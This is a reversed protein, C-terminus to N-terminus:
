LLTKWDQRYLCISRKLFRIIFAFNVASRLNMIRLVIPAKYKVGVLSGDMGDLGGTAGRHSVRRQLTILKSLSWMSQVHASTHSTSVFQILYQVYQTLPLKVCRRLHLLHVALWRVPAELENPAWVFIGGPYRFSSYTSNRCLLSMPYQAWRLLYRFFGRWQFVFHM